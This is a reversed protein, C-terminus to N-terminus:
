QAGKARAAENADIKANYEEETIHGDSYENELECEEICFRCMKFQSEGAGTERTQKGCLDCVIMGGVRGAGSKNFTNYKKM